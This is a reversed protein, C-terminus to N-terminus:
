QTQSFGIPRAVVILRHSNGQYPWCTVLTLREDITPKIWQANQQQQQPPADREPVIFRDTVQYQYEYAGARLTLADGVKLDVLDRFVEAGLNHHGSLVVNNGHGPLASNEHWGAADDPVDWVTLQEGNQETVIWGVPEVAAELGIAPALIKSPPYRAPILPIATSTPKLALAAHVGEAAGHSAMVTPTLKAAPTVTPSPTPSPPAPTVTPTATPRMSNVSNAVPPQTPKAAQAVNDTHISPSLQPASQVTVANEPGLGFELRCALTGLGLLLALVMLHLRPRRARRHSHGSSFRTPM